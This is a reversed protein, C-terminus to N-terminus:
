SEYRRSKGCRVVQITVGQRAAQAALQALTEDLWTQSSNQPIVLLLRRDKIDHPLITIDQDGKHYHAGTFSGLDKLFGNVKRIVAHRDAYTPATLDMSKISTALGGSFSAIVPFDFPLNAGMRERFTRGRTLNDLMWIDDDLNSKQEKQSYDWLPVVRNVTRRQTGLAHRQQWSLCIWLQHRDVQYDLFVSPDSITQRWINKYTTVRGPQGTNADDLWYQIRTLVVPGILGTYALDSFGEQIFRDPWIEFFSDLEETEPEEDFAQEMLSAAPFLLSIEQAARYVAGSLKIQATVAIIQSIMFWILWLLVPLVLAAELCLSGKRKASPRRM